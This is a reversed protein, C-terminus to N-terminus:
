SPRLRVTYDDQEVAEVVCERGGFSVPEGVTPVHGFDYPGGEGYSGDPTRVLVRYEPSGGGRIVKRLSAFVQSRKPVPIELGKPTRQKPEQKDGVM